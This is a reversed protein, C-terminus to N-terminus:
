CPEASGLPSPAHNLCLSSVGVDGSRKIDLLGPGHQGNFSAAFGTPTHLSVKKVSSRCMCGIPLHRATVLGLAGENPPAKAKVPLNM